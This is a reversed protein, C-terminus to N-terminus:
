LAFPDEALYLSNHISKIPENSGAKHQIEPKTPTSPQPSIHDRSAQEPPPPESYQMWILGFILLLILGIMNTNIPKIAQTKTWGNGKERLDDLGERIPSALPKPPEINEHHPPPVVHIEKEIEGIIEAIHTASQPRQEPEKQLLDFILGRLAHPIEDRDIQPPEERLHKMLVELPTKGYFPKQGTLAEHLVVGLAYLDTAPTLPGGTAQEPAMYPPSGVLMGSRTIQELDPDSDIPKAIGFDLVKVFAPLGSDRQLFINAPKLDRHVLGRDHAGSLASAIAKATRIVFGIPLAGEEKIRESLDKGELYEMTLHAGLEPDQGFDFVRVIHPHQFKSLIQAEREFRLRAEKQELSEKRILKIVVPQHLNIHEGFWVEGMGGQGLLSLLRYRNGVVKGAKVSLENRFKHEPLTPTEDLPCQLLDGKYECRPCVRIDSM